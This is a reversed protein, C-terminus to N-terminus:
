KSKIERMEECLKECEERAKELTVLDYGIGGGLDKKRSEGCVKCAVTVGIILLDEDFGFRHVVASVEGHSWSCNSKIM